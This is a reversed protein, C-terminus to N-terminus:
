KTPTYVEYLKNVPDYTYYGVLILSGNFYIGLYDGQYIPNSPDYILQQQADALGQATAFAAGGAPTQFAASGTGFTANILAGVIPNSKGFDFALLDDIKISGEIHAPQLSEADGSKNVCILNFYTLTKDASVKLFSRGFPNFAADIGKIAPVITDAHVGKFWGEEGTVFSELKSNIIATSGVSSSDKGPSIHDQIIVPGGAGIMECDKITVDTSGWNYVFCNYSDYARCKEMLFSSHTNNPMYAIFWGVSINNYATFKPGEVKLFITGGSKIANEVRPANGVLNVNQITTESNSEGEFRIFTAHSIVEGQASINDRERVVEKIKKIDLTFYNGYIGFTEGELLDNQYLNKYDKMSGLARSEDSAGKVENAQWFFYTPLDDATISIDSQLIISTPHYDVDLGKENKFDIWAQKAGENWSKNNDSRNELYAMDLATYANFGDIVECDFTTTYKEVNQLQKETLKCPCVTVRFKKGIAKESFNITCKVTDIEDILDTDSSLEVPEDNTIDIVKIEYEWSDVTANNNVVELTEVNIEVFTVEPMVVWANDDGVLYEKTLDLFETRKNEKEQKNSDYLVFENKQSVGNVFIQNKNEVKKKEWKAYVTTDKTIAKDFDFLTEFKEDAYWNVFDYNEKTPNNPKTVKNGEIVTVAKVESGGNTEFTVKFESTTCATLMIVCVAIISFFLLSRFKKM